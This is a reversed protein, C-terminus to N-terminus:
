GRNWGAVLHLRGGSQGASLESCVGHRGTMLMGALWGMQEFVRGVRWLGPEAMTEALGGELEALPEVLSWGPEPM